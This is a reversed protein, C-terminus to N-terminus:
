KTQFESVEKQVLVHFDFKTVESQRSPQLEVLFLLLGNAARGVIDSRFYQFPLPMRILDVNPRHSDDHVRQM